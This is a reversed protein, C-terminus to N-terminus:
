ATLASVFYKFRTERQSAVNTRDKAASVFASLEADVRGDEDSQLAEALVSLNYLRDGSEFQQVTPFDFSGPVPMVNQVHAHALTLSYFNFPKTLATGAIDSEFLAADLAAEIAERMTSETAFQADNDRYVKDLTAKSTTTIGHLLASSLETLLKADAMRNLQKTAFVGAAAFAEDYKKSLANIFWKFDGQYTAHRSEEPNLPITFSNMRRFVERVDDDTASAFVDFNLGYDLFTRQDADDLEDFTRNAFRDTELSKSLRLRNQFFELIAYSRQQGDVIEKVMKRSKLDLNQHVSLKPVPFELLITEILFSKANAPWVKDSRQYDRNVSYEGSKLGECFDLVPVTSHLTKM